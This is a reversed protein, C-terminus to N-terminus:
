LKKITRHNLIHMVKKICYNMKKQTKNLKKTVFVRKLSM